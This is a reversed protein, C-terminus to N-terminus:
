FDGKKDRTPRRKKRKKDRCDSPQSSVVPFERSGAISVHKRKAWLKKPRWDYVSVKHLIDTPSLRPNDRNLDAGSKQQDEESGFDIRIKLQNTGPIVKSL